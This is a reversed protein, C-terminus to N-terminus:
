VRSLKKPSRESKRTVSALTKHKSILDNLHSKLQKSKGMCKRKATISALESKVHNDDRKRKVLNKKLRTDKVLESHNTKMNLNVRKKKMTEIRKNRHKLLIEKRKSHKEM